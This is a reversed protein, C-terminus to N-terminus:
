SSIRKDLVVGSLRSLIQALREFVNVSAHNDCDYNLYLEVVLQPDSFIRKLSLLFQDRQMPTTPYRLELVPLIIEKFIQECEHKFYERLCLVLREFVSLSSGLITKA